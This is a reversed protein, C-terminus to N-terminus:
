HLNEFPNQLLTLTRVMDSPIYFLHIGEGDCLTQALTVHKDKAGPDGVPIMFGITHVICEGDDELEDLALWGPESTHADAWTIHVMPYDPKLGAM